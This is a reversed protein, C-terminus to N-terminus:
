REAAAGWAAQRIGAPRQKAWEAVWSLLQLDRGPGAIVSLGIPAGDAAGTPIHVQPLGALGAICTLQMARSRREENAAGSVNRQPAPGPVTPIVLLGDDGLQERLRARVDFWLRLEAGSDKRKLKSAWAFREAIDPAFVPHAREIWPGHTDWIELGQVIRFARMWAALGEPAIVAWDSDVCTKAMSTVDKVLRVRVPPEALEWAEIALLM